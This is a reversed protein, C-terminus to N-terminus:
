VDMEVDDEEENKLASEASVTTVLKSASMYLKTRDTFNFADIGTNRRQPWVLIETATLSMGFQRSMFWLGVTEAIVLCKVGKCLDDPTGRQYTLNGDADVDTVVFINTPYQETCKVKVRVTPKAEPKSPLKLMRVYMPDVAEKSMQKRFWDQSSDVAKKINKEDLTSLFKDLEPSEVTLELTRRSADQGPMPTSLGWVACQLNEKESESMQFRLKDKYDTSGPLTSVNVVKGGNRNSTPAKYELAELNIGTCFM